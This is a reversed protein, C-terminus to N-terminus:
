GSRQLASIPPMIQIRQNEVGAALYQAHVEARLMIQDGLDLNQLCSQIGRPAHVRQPSGDANQFADPLLYARNLLQRLVTAQAERKARNVQM